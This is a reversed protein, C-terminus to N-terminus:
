TDLDGHAAAGAGGDDLLRKRRPLCLPVTRSSRAQCECYGVYGVYGVYRVLIRRNLVNVRVSSSNAGASPLVTRIYTQPRVAYARPCMPLKRVNTVSSM